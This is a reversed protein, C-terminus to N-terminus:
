LYKKKKPPWTLDMSQELERIERKNYVKLPRPQENKKHSRPRIEIKKPPKFEDDRM